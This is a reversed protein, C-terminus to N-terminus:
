RNGARERAYRANAARCAECPRVGERREKLDGARTGHEFQGRPLRRKTGPDLTIPRGERYSRNHATNAARCADCKCGAWYRQATGHPATTRHHDVHHDRCRLECKDLEAVVREWAM